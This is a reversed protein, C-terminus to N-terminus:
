TIFSAATVARWPPERGSVTTAALPAPRHRQGICLRTGLKSEANRAYRRDGASRWDQAPPADASRVTSVARMFACYGINAMRHCDAELQRSAHIGIEDLKLNGRDCADVPDFANADLTDLDRIQRTSDDRHMVAQEFSEVRAQESETCIRPPWAQLDINAPDVSAIGTQDLDHDHALVAREFQPPKDQVVCLLEGLLKTAV